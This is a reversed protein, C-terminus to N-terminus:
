YRCFNVVIMQSNKKLLVEIPYEKTNDAVSISEPWAPQAVTEGQEELAERIVGEIIQISATFDFPFRTPVIVNKM